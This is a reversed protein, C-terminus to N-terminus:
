ILLTLLWLIKKRKKQPIKEALVRPNIYRDSGELDCKLAYWHAAEGASWVIEGEGERLLIRLIRQTSASNHEKDGGQRILLLLLLFLYDRLFYLYIFM